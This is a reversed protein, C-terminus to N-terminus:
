KCSYAMNFKAQYTDTSSVSGNTYFNYVQNLNFVTAYGSANFQYSYLVVDDSTKEGNLDTTVTTSKVMMNKSQKGFYNGPFYDVEFSLPDFLEYVNKALDNSYEYNIIETSGDVKYVTKSQTLNGNTYTLTTTSNIDADLYNEVGVLYGESNYTYKRTSSTSNVFDSVYSSVARGNDLTIESHEGDDDVAEVKNISYTYSTSGQDSTTKIIKGAANYTFGVEYTGLVGLDAKLSTLQCNSGANPLKSFDIEKACGALTLVVVTSIILTKFNKIM